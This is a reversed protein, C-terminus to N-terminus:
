EFAYEVNKTRINKKGDSHSRRKRRTRSNQQKNNGYWCHMAIIICLFTCVSAIKGEGRGKVVFLIFFSSSIPTPIDAM